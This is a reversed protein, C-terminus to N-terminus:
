AIMRVANRCLFPNQHRILRASSCERDLLNQLAFLLAKLFTGLACAFLQGFGLFLQRADATGARREIALVRALLRVPAAFLVRWPPAAVDRNTPVGCGVTSGTDM